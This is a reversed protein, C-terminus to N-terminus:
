GCRPRNRRSAHLLAVVVLAAPAAPAANAAKPVTAAVAVPPAPALLARVVPQVVLRHDLCHLVRAVGAVLVRPQPPGLQPRVRPRLRARVATAEAASRGSRGKKARRALLPVLVVVGVGVDRRHRHPLGHRLLDLLDNAVGGLPGGVGDLIEAPRQAANLALAIRLVPSANLDLQGLEEEGLREARAVRPQVVVHGHHRRRRHVLVPQRRRARRRVGPLVEVVREEM